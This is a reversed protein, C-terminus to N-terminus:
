AWLSSGSVSLEHRTPRLSLGIAAVISGNPDLRIHGSRQLEEIGSTISARNDIRAVLHDVSVPKVTEFLIPFASAQLRGTLSGACSLVLFGRLAVLIQEQTPLDLRCSAQDEPERVRGTVDFGDVLLTPSNYDGVLEEVVTDIHTQALGKKLESRASEVLLCDRVYLLQVRLHRRQVM